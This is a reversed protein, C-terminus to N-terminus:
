KAISSNKIGFKSVAKAKLSENQTRFADRQVLQSKDQINDMIFLIILILIAVCFSNQIVSM